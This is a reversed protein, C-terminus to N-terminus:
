PADQGEMKTQPMLDAAEENLLKMKELLPDKQSNIIWSQYILSGLTACQNLFEANIEDRTRPVKKDDPM